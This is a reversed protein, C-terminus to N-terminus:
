AARSTKVISVLIKLVEMSDHYMSEFAREDLYESEHLLELWYCTEEAEKLAINRKAIFDPMSQARTGERVNAGISTGSRLIQKSMVFERKKIRLYKYLKIIRLAFAKSKVLIVNEKEEMTIDKLKFILVSLFPNNISFIINRQTKKQNLTANTNRRFIIRLEANKIRLEDDRM